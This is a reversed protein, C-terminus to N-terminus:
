AACSPKERKQARLFERTRRMLLFRLARFLLLCIALRGEIYCFFEYHEEEWVPEIDSVIEGCCEKLTYLLAAFWGNLHPEPFGLRGKLMVKKPKIMNLIDRLLVMANGMFERDLAGLLALPSFRQDKKKKKEKEQGWKQPDLAFSLGAIFLHIKFAHATQGSWQGKVALCPTCRISFDGRFFDNYGCEFQYRLPVLLLLLCLLVIAALIFLVAYLFFVLAAM